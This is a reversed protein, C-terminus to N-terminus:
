KRAIHMQFFSQVSVKYKYEKIYNTIYKLGDIHKNNIFLSDYHVYEKFKSILNFNDSIINILIEEYAKISIKKINNTNYTNIFKKIEILCNNIKDNSIICKEINVINNTNDQYFGIMNDKVSLTIHNRYGYERDNVIDINDIDINGIRKLNNKVKEKKFELQYEYLEHMLNCGGCKYYYPCEPYRRKNSYTKINIVSGEYFNKNKKVIELDIIEDKLTFPVFTVVDDIKCIGMGENNENIIKVNSNHM